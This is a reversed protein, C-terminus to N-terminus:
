SPVTVAADAGYSALKMPLTTPMRLPSVMLTM